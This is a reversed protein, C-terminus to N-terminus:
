LRSGHLVASLAKLESTYIMTSYRLSVPLVKLILKLLASELLARLRTDRRDFGNVGAASRGINHGINHLYPDLARVMDLVVIRMVPPLRPRPKPSTLFNREKGFWTLEKARAM